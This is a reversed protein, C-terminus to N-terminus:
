EHVAPVLGQLECSLNKQCKLDVQDGLSILYLLRFGIGSSYPMKKLDEKSLQM